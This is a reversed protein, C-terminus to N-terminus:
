LQHTELAVMQQWSLGEEVTVPEFDPRGQDEAESLKGAMNDEGLLRELRTITTQLNPADEPTITADFSPRTDVLARHRSDVVLGHMATLRQIRIRNRDALEAMDHHKIIQLYYLRVTAAALIVMILATLGAIRPELKPIPRSKKERTFKAM